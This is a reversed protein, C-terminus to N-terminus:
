ERTWWLDATRMSNKGFKAQYYDVVSQAHEKPTTGKMVVVPEKLTFGAEFLTVFSDFLNQRGFRRAETLVHKVIGSKLLRSAGLVVAPDKGEVDIKLLTIVSDNKRDFWGQEHAFADLTVVKTKAQHDKDADVKEDLGKLFAQGPNKPVFLTMEGEQDSVANQFINVHDYDNLRLSDCLRLINAPNPEFSVVNHGLAASLLTYYGINAGVDVVNSRPEKELIKVFRAHVEDEYYKGELFITKWRVPDYDESHVAVRFHPLTITERAYIKGQNPDSWENTAVKQKIEDCSLSFGPRIMSSVTTTTRLSHHDSSAIEESTQLMLTGFILFLGTGFVWVWAESLTKCLGQKQRPRKQIRTM